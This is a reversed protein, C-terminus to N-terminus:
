KISFDERVLSLNENYYPDGRVISENHIRYMYEIERLVRESNRGNADYGRSVSEHHICEAYPTYINVYGKQRLRLCFDVDNFSIPLHEENFGGTEEYLRKKVMMCAATVASVNQVIWPRAFTGVRGRPLYKHSHGAIGGIGLIVGAHQIRMDPYYLLGGVAGTNDRGSYELMNEIWEPTLVEIDNNMLVVHKGRAWEFVGVNNLRSYNFPENREYLRIRDDRETLEDILEATERQSSNNSIAIIEFRPYTSKELISGICARLLEPKDKFPIVISILPQEALAYKVRYTGPYKGPFVEARLGRRVCADYVSKEGAKQAYSKRDFSYATSGPVMRWHYLVRHIHEIKDTQEAIRLYLDHDQAGEYGERFGGIEDILGKRVAALHSIYNQSVLMDPAYDPKFHPQQFEGRVTIKDEDTYLFDAGTENIRKVIEYLADPTLEDDHDALVVFDGDALKLAENSAGSIGKNESLNVTKIRPNDLSLLYQRTEGRTSCDDAICLEWCNYWQKEVSQILLRLWKKEVNYVPVIVSILPKYQFGEIRKRIEETLQPERYWYKKGADNGNIASLRNVLVDKVLQITKRLGGQRFSKLIKRKNRYLRLLLVDAALFRKYPVYDDAHATLCPRRGESFGFEIYHLLPNIEKKRVDINNELYYKTSFKPSPDCGQVAGYDLYHRIPNERAGAETGYKQIYFATDFLGSKKITRERNDPRM